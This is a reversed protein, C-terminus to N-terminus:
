FQLMLLLINQIRQDMYWIHLFMAGGDGLWASVSICLCSPIFLILLKLVQLINLAKRMDGNSLCKLAELGSEPVDLRIWSCKTLHVAANLRICQMLWFGIIWEWNGEFKLTCLLFFFVHLSLLEWLCALTWSDPCVVRFPLGLKQRWVLLGEFNENTKM